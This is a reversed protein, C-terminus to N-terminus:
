IPPMGEPHRQNKKSLDPATWHKSRISGWTFGEEECLRKQPRGKLRDTRSTARFAGPDNRGMAGPRGKELYECYNYIKSKVDSTDHRYEAVIHVDPKHAYMFSIYFIYMKM